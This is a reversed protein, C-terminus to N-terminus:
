EAACDELQLTLAAGELTATSSAGKAATGKLGLLSLNARVNVQAGCETRLEEANREYYYDVEGEAAAGLKAEVRPGEGGATFVEAAAVVSAGEALEAAGFVAPQGIVLRQHAPLSVALSLACAKRDVRKDTVDVSMEPLFVMVRGSFSSQYVELPGGGPCGNGGSAIQSADIVAGAPAALLLSIGLGFAKVTNKM